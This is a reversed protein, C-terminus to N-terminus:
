SQSLNALDTAHEEYHEITESVFYGAAQDTAPAKAWADLLRQRTASTEHEVQDITMSRGARLAQENAADTDGDWDELDGRMMSELARICDNWWFAIHWEVDKVSWGNTLWPSGRDARDVSEISASLRDWAQQERSTLEDKNVVL